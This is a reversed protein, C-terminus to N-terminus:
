TRLREVRRLKRAFLDDTTLAELAIDATIGRATLLADLATRAAPAAANERTPLCLVLKGDPRQQLRFDTIAPDADLIANRLVDPTVMREGFWFVDDQRGVVAEVAQLPSGCPCPETALRLLDNMQYRAMLQFRRALDTVRPSVLRGDSGAVPELDFAVFDETLHLTGHACSVGFLGETAMYIQGLRVRFATEVTQQDPPDLTEAGAFVHRPQLRDLDAHEALWRLVKPPAIMVSPAFQELRERWAEPGATLDFFALQLWRSQNGAQYLASNQPLIVAVRHRRHWVDPLGKALITGLWQYREADTILYLGRNGSTGTSAGCSLGPRVQGQELKARVQEASLEAQNFAAFDAMLATKDMRLADPNHHPFAQTVHARWRAWQQRQHRALDARTRLRAALWRARAFARLVPLTAKLSM